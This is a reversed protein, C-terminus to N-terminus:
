RTRTVIVRMGPDLFRHVDGLVSGALGDAASLVGSHRLVRDVDDDRVAAFGEGGDIPGPLTGAAETNAETGADWTISTLALTDGVSLEGLAAEDVSTFADNTNVLMTAISLRPDSAGPPVEVTWSTSGGPPVPGDALQTGRVAPDADAVAGLPAADGGEALTELAVSASEGVEFLRYGAEHLVLLPPSFPQGATLNVASVSFLATVDGEGAGGGGDEGVTGDGGTDDSGDNGGDTSTTGGDGAGSLDGDDDDSSCGYLVAITVALALATRGRTRRTSM